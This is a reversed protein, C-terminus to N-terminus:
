SSCTPSVTVSLDRYTALDAASLARGSNQSRQRQRGLHNLQDKVCAQPERAADDMSRQIDAAGMELSELTEAQRAEDAEVRTILAATRRTKAKSHDIQTDVTVLEPKQGRTLAERRFQLIRVKDEHAKESRKVTAERKKM